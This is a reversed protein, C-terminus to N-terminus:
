AKEIISIERRILEGDKPTFKVLKFPVCPIGLTLKGSQVMKTWEEKIMHPPPDAPASIEGGPLRRLMSCQCAKSGSPGELRSIDIGSIAAVEKVV